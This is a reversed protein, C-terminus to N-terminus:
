VEKYYAPSAIELYEGKRVEGRYSIQFSRPSSDLLSGGKCRQKGLQSHGLVINWSKSVLSKNKKRYKNIDAFKFGWPYLPPVVIGSLDVENSYDESVILKPSANKFATLLIAEWEDETLIDCDNLGNEVGEQFKGVHYNKQPNFSKMLNFKEANEFFINVGIVISESNKKLVLEVINEWECKVRIDVGHLEAFDIAYCIAGQVASIILFSKSSNEKDIKIAKKIIAIINETLVRKDIGKRDVSNIFSFPSKGVKYNGDKDLITCLIYNRLAIYDDYYKSKLMKTAMTVEYLMANRYDNEFEQVRSKRITDNIDTLFPKIRSVFASLNNCYSTKRSAKAILIEQDKKKM